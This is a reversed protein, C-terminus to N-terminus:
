VEKLSFLDTSQNQFEELQKCINDILLRDAATLLRDDAVVLPQQLIRVYEGTVAWWGGALEILTAKTDVDLPPYLAAGFDTLATELVDSQASMEAVWKNCQFVAGETGTGSGSEADGEPLQVVVDEVSAETETSTGASAGASASSTAAARANSDGVTTMVALGTKLLELSLRILDVSEGVFIFDSPGYEAGEDEEEDDGGENDEDVGMEENIRDQVSQAEEGSGAKLQAAALYEEFETLTDKVASIREMVFRRYAAKNSLPLQQIQDSTKWVMGTRSNRANGPEDKSLIAILDLIQLLKGRISRSIVHFLPDGLSCDIVAMYNGMLSNVNMTMEAAISSVGLESGDRTTVITLRTTAKSLIDAADKLAALKTQLVKDRIWPGEAIAKGARKKRDVQLISITECGSRLSVELEQFM